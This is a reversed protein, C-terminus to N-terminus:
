WITLTKNNILIVIIKNYLKNKSLVTIEKSFFLQKKLKMEHMEYM